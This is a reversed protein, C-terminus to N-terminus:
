KFYGVLYAQSSGNISSAMTISCQPRCHQNVDGVPYPGLIKDSLDAARRSNTFVHRVAMASDPSVAGLFRAVQAGTGSNAEDSKFGRV